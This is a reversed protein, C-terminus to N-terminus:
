SAQKMALALCAVNRFKYCTLVRPRDQRMCGGSCNSEISQFIVVCILGREDVFEAVRVLVLTAESVCVCVYINVLEAPRQIEPTQFGGFTSVFPCWFRYM